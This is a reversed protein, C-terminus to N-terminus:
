YNQANSYKENIANMHRSLLLVDSHYPMGTAKKMEPGGNAAVMHRKLFLLDIILSNKSATPNYVYCKFFLNKDADSYIAWAEDLGDAILSNMIAGEIIENEGTDSYINDM